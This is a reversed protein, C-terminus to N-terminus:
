DTEVLEFREYSCANKVYNDSGANSHICRVSSLFTSFYAPTPFTAAECFISATSCHSM